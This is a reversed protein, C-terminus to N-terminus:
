IVAKFNFAKMKNFNGRMDLKKMANLRSLQVESPTVKLYTCLEENVLVELVCRITSFSHRELQVSKKYCNKINVIKGFSDLAAHLTFARKLDPTRNRLFKM